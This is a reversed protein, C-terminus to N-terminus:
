CLPPIPDEYPDIGMAKSRVWSEAIMPEVEIRIIGEHIFANWYEQYENLKSNKM